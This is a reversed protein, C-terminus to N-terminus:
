LFLSYIFTIGVCVSVNCVYVNFHPLCEVSVRIGISAPAIVIRLHNMIKILGERHPLLRIQLIGCSGCSRTECNM